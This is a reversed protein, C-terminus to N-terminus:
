PCGHSIEATLQNNAVAAGNRVTWIATETFPRGSGPLTVRTTVQWGVKVRRATVSGHKLKCARTNARLISKVIAIAQAQTTETRASRVPLTKATAASASVTTVLLCALVGNLLLAAPNICSSFKMLTKVEVEFRGCFLSAVHFGCLNRADDQFRIASECFCKVLEVFFAQGSVPCAPHPSRL